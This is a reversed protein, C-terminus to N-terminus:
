HEAIRCPGQFHRGGYNTTGEVKYWVTYTGANTGTPITTSYTGMETLSYVVEGISATGATVLAQAAGTYTLTNATPDGTVTLTSTGVNVNNTAGITYQSADITVGNLEVTVNGAAPVVAAGTYTYSGSVTVTAGDLMTKKTTIPKGESSPSANHNKDGKLRVYFTYSMTFLGTALVSM